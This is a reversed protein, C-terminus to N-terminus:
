VAMFNWKYRYFCPIISKLMNYEFKNVRIKIKPKNDFSSCSIIQLCRQVDPYDCYIMTMIFPPINLTNIQVGQERSGLCQWRLYGFLSWIIQCKRSLVIQSQNYYFVTKLHTSNMLQKQNVSSFYIIIM